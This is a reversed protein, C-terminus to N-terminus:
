ARTKLQVKIGRPQKPAILQLAFLGYLIRANEGASLPPTNVLEYLMRKGDVADLVRQEDETLSLDDFVNETADFLTTKTGLRAVLSRADPMLRVGSMVARPVPIEVKVFETHKDRGPVFMVAGSDWAFLSWLISEIQARVVVFLDEATIIGMDVLTLGHRKGSKRSQKLSADYQRRTIRGDALLKDGLSESTQNTAAWIIQGRDLYVRKTVDDRRCEIVGPAKYRHITVLIEPLPTQALDSQYLSASPHPTDHRPPV